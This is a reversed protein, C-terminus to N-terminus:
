RVMLIGTQITSIFSQTHFETRHKEVAAVAAPKALIITIFPIAATALCHM